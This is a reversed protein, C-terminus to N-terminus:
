WQVITHVIYMGVYAIKFAMRNRLRLALPPESGHPTNYSCDLDTSERTRLRHGRLYEVSM